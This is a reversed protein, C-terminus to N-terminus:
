TDTCPLYKYLETQQLISKMIEYLSGWPINILVKQLIPQSAQLALEWIRLAASQSNSCWLATRTQVESQSTQKCLSERNSGWLGGLLLSKHPSKLHTDKGKDDSFLLTSGICKRRKSLSDWSFPWQRGPTSDSKLRNHSWVM